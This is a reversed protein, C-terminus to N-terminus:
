GFILAKGGLNRAQRFNLQVNEPKHKLKLVNNMIIYWFFLAPIELRLGKLM